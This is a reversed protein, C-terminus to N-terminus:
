ENEHATRTERVVVDHASGEHITVSSVATIRATQQLEPINLAGSNCMTSRLKALTVDLNEKLTGAYPVYADVGEEFTLGSKGASGDEYRQWNRARNSGEGWYEKVVGHNLRLMRGPSEEFGAFYRGMMVFNAGMALALTIHYDRTIGGDSCIPVYVGTADLYDDRARAVELLSTAQGRGIGKQERTICISGGGIGVKVFDAGVDALYRFGEADVVNGAGIPTSPFNSKVFKVADAQWESYGDSSDICLVDAGAAVLSPVREAYDHTSIAAGVLLRKSEDVVQLPFEQAADYDKRFVMYHLHQRDDVIPLSNLKHSWILDNAAELDIGVRGCKLNRTPTMLETVPTGLPTRGPRYDRGAVIGVLRGTPTGDETVAVTSHGTNRTTALVDALTASPRVNSDSVVFGAKHSKVRRVMAAQSAISQSGFIFALGGSRALAIALKDDSVAQMMASTIPVKISLAASGGRQFRVLPATLDVASSVVGKRTLNPVLLYEGFTRSPEDFIHAM